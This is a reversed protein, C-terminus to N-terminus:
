YYYYYYIFLNFYNGKVGPIEVQPLGYFSNKGYSIFVPMNHMSHRDSVEKDEWYIVEEQTVKLEINM